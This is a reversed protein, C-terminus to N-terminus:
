IVINWELAAPRDDQRVALHCRCLAPADPAAVGGVQKCEM